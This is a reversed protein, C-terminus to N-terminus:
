ARPTEFVMERPGTVGAFAAAVANGYRETASDGMLLHLGLPPPGEAEIAAVVKKFYAVGFAIRDEDRVIRFGAERAAARYAEPPEVFSQEPVSAWPLPFAIEGEGTRMVDFVVFRGGPVLVRFVEAFLAPKDPINMGAHFMTVLDFDATALPLGLASGVHFSTRESLGTLRSLAQATDVLAPTLDIGTVRAGYRHAIFRATGGIGSGVDLVRTDRGIGLPALVMETAEVGGTHFEDVPKLDEPAPHEPDAGAERLGALIRELIPGTTYHAQIDGERVPM